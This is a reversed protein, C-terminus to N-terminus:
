LRGTELGTLARQAYAPVLAGMALAREPNSANGDLARRKVGQLIAAMRFFSFAIAYTLDPRKTLGAREAYLDVYAADGPIGLDDRDAGDLGRSAEGVPMRWAMLQFGLDALPHGLTSLEWDLVAAVRGSRHMLNDIRWDGHVLTPAADAPADAESLWAILTEMEPITDTESARYQATWRQQQRLFYGMPRGYSGLGVAAIDVQHLAALTANMDDYLAARDDRSLSPCRPDNETQGSVFEMLFFSTGLVAEDECLAYVRPVPVTSSALAQMVRFEREIAHASKLLEGPPKRRLVMPGINTDLVFTPNSQGLETKRASRIESLGPVRGRAWAEVRALPLLTLVPVADPSGM